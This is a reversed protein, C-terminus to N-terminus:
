NMVSFFVIIAMQSHVQSPNKQPPMNQTNKPYKQYKKASKSVEQVKHYKQTSKLVKHYM